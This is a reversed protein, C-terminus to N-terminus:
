FGPFNGMMGPPLGLSQGLNQKEQAEASRVRSTVDALAAFILKELIQAEEEGFLEPDCTVGLPEFKGNMTIQVAGDEDAGSFSSSQMTEKMASVQSHLAQAKAFLDGFNM